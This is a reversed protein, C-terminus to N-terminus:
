FHTQADPGAKGGDGAAVSQQGNLLWGKLLTTRSPFEAIIKLAQRGGDPPLEQTDRSQTIPKCDATNTLRIHRLRNNPVDKVYIWRVKFTGKWKGEQVWVTSDSSYDLPTLMEAIGCFHGSANVSFLLYLPGSSSSEKFARDLRQNGKETSAWIEHKLSRQVDDETFSKIVFFRARPASIDFQTTPPNYGKATILSHFAPDQLSGTLNQSFQVNTSNQTAFSNMDSGTQQGGPYFIPLGNMTTTSAMVPWHMAAQPAHVVNGRMDLLPAAGAQSAPDLYYSPGQFPYANGNMM